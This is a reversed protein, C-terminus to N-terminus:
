KIVPSLFDYASVFSKGTNSIMLMLDVLGWDRSLSGVLERFTGDSMALLKLM